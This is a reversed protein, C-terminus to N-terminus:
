KLIIKFSVRRSKDKDEGAQNMVTKSFSYGSGKLIQTLWRKTNANQMKFIYSLTSYSRRMSLKENKLYRQTANMGGWESSTHGNIELTKIDNKYRKLFPILKNSFIRLYQMQNKNLNYKAVKFYLNNAMFSITLDKNIKIKKSSIDDKFLKILEKYFNTTNSSKQAITGDKNFKLLWMNSEQSNEYTYIGVALAQSNHLISLSNLMDYNKAGYHEQHQLNLYSDLVMVLADTNSTDRVYGVGMLIGDSYEKIDKLASAYNTKIIKDILINKHLDFKILRIQEKKLGEKQSLSILFNNDRLKIIKYPTITKTDNYHKLWIKDGNQTIRILTLNKHNNHSTVGLIIISGDLAEVADLGKDDYSTGYKKSWLKKGDKRFRAIYIDNQGLGNEFIDDVRSRSTISSGVTLVGGDRLKVLKNMKDYNKTGFTKNFILNAKSDLKLVSLSGDLTYGGIFYGNTPTKLVGVAKSIKSIKIPSNIKINADMDIKILHMQTGISNSVSKLYDFANTYSINSNDAQQYNQSFGVASIDRDYDQTVDFLADNFPKDIIISFNSTNAYISTLLLSLYIIIKQM